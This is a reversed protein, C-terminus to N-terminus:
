FIDFLAIVSYIYLYEYVEEEEDLTQFVKGYVGYFGQLLTLVNVRIQRM